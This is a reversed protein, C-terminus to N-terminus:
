QNAKFRALAGGKKGKGKGKGKKKEKKKDAAPEEDVDMADPDEIPKTNDAM